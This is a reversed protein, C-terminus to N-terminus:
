RSLFPNPSTGMFDPVVPKFPLPQEMREDRAKRADNGERIRRMQEMRERLIETEEENPLDGPKDMVEDMLQLFAANHARLTVVEIPMFWEPSNEVLDGYFFCKYEESRYVLRENRITPHLIAGAPAEPSDKILQYHKM